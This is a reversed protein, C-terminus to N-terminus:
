LGKQVNKYAVTASYAKRYTSIRNLLDELHQEINLIEM